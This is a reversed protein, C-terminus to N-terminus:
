SDNSGDEGVRKQVQHLLSALRSARETDDLEIPGGDKGTVERREVFDAESKALNESAKLRHKMHEQDDEMVQTWFEQRRQRSAIHPRREEGERQKIAERVKPTQMLEYGRSGPNRYGAKRAAETYNGEYYDVFRQQKQSLIGEKGNSAM